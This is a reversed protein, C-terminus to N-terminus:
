SISVLKALRALLERNEATLERIKQDSRRLNAGLSERMSALSYELAERRVTEKELQDLLRKVIDTDTESERATALISDSVSSSSPFPSQPVLTKIPPFYSDKYPDIPDNIRATEAAALESSLHSGRSTLGGDPSYCQDDAFTMVIAPTPPETQVGVSRFISPLAQRESNVANSVAGKGGSSALGPAMSNSHSTDRVPTLQTLFNNKRKWKNVTSATSKKPTVDLDQVPAAEGDVKLAEREFTLRNDVQLMADSQRQVPREFDSLTSVSSQRGLSGLSARPDFAIDIDPLDLPLQTTDATTPRFSRALKVQSSKAAVSLPPLKETKGLASIGLEKAASPDEFGSDDRLYSEAHSSTPLNESQFSAQSYQTGPSATSIGTSDDHFGGEESTSASSIRRMRGDLKLPAPKHKQLGLFASMGTDPRDTVATDPRSVATSPRNGTTPKNGTQPRGFTGATDPRLEKAVKVTLGTVKRLSMSGEAEDDPDSDLGFSWPHSEMPSTMSGLDLDLIRDLYTKNTKKSITSMAYQSPAPSHSREIGPGFAAKTPGPSLTPLTSPMKYTMSSRSVVTSSPLNLKLSPPRNPFARSDTLPSGGLVVQGTKGTYGPSIPSSLTPAAAMSQRKALSSLDPTSKSKKLSTTNIRTAAQISVSQATTSAPSLASPKRLPAYVIPSSSMSENFVNDADAQSADFLVAFSPSHPPLSMITSARTRASNFANDLGNEPTQLTGFSSSRSSVKVQRSTSLTSKMTGRRKRRPAEVGPDPSVNASNSSPNGAKFMSALASFSRKSKTKKSPAASYNSFSTQAGERGAQVPQRAEPSASFPIWTSAAHPPPTDGIQLQVGCSLEQLPSTARRTSPAPTGSRSPAPGVNPSLTVTQMTSTRELSQRPKKRGFLKSM